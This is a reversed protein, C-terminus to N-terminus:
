MNEWLRYEVFRIYWIMRVQYLCFHGTPREMTGWGSLVASRRRLDQPGKANLRSPIRSSIM